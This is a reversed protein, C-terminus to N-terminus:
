SFPRQAAALQSRCTFIQQRLRSHERLSLWITVGLVLCAVASLALLIVVATVDISSLQVAERKVGASGLVLLGFGAALLQIGIAVVVLLRSRFGM